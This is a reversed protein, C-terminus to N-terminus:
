RHFFKSEFAELPVLALDGEITVQRTLLENMGDSLGDTPFAALIQEGSFNIVVLSESDRSSRTFALLGETESALRKLTGMQLSTYSNRMEVLDRYFDSFAEGGEPAWDIPEPEFLSPRHTAGVEQGNYILPIGPLTFILSAYPKLGPWGFVAASRPEDHNEVFRMWLKGEPLQADADVIVNWLSDLAIRGAAHDKMRHYLTWDYAADFGAELVWPDGWEALMFLDPKIARLRPIAVEWFERPVMGAVDCRYGDVNLDRVWFELARILYDVTEQNEFDWDTIDWWDGVERTFAGSSDRMYWEPHNEMEVHDNASHNIVMDLILRMGRSHTADVLSRFEELTGYEEGTAFYDRVSYPSGASGKRGEEGVPHIPMLWINRVGMQEFHGLSTELGDFTGQETFSRVYVEYLPKGFFWRGSM